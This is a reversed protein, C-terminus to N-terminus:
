PDPARPQHREHDPYLNSFVDETAAHGVRASFDLIPMGESLSEMGIARGITAQLARAKEETGGELRAVVILGFFDFCAGCDVLLSLFAKLKESQYEDRQKQSSIKAFDGFYTTSLEASEAQVVGFTNGGPSKVVVRTSTADTVRLPANNARLEPKQLPLLGEPALKFMVKTFTGRFALQESLLPTTM